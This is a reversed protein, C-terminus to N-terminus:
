PVDRATPYLAWTFAFPEGDEGEDEFEQSLDELRTVFEEFQAKSIRGLRRGLSLRRQDDRRDLSAIGDVISRYLDARTTDFVTSVVAQARDQLTGSTLLGPGPRYQKASAEYIRETMPGVKRTEAVRIIGKDELLNFHHYLRTRPVGLHKAIDTVSRPQYLLELIAMRTPEGITRLTELDNILYVDEM